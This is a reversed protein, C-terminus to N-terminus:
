HRYKQGTDICILIVFPLKFNGLEFSPGSTNELPADRFDHLSIATHIGQGRFQSKHLPHFIRAIGTSLYMSYMYMM